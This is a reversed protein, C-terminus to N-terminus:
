PATMLTRMVISRSARRALTSKVPVDPMWGVAIEVRGLGDCPRGHEVDEADQDVIRDRHVGAAQLGMSMTM